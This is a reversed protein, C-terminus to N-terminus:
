VVNGLPKATTRIVPDGLIPINDAQRELQSQGTDKQPNRHPLHIWPLLLVQIYNCNNTSMDMSRITYNWIIVKTHYVVTTAFNISLMNRQLIYFRAGCPLLLLSLMFFLNTLKPRAATITNDMAPHRLAAGAAVVAAGSAVVAAGASVFAPSVGAAVSAGAASGNLIPIM